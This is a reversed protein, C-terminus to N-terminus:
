PLKKLTLRDLAVAGGRAEIKVHASPAKLQVVRVPLDACSGSPVDVWEWHQDGIRLIGASIAEGRPVSHPVSSDQVARPAIEYRGDAPVPVTITVQAVGTVPTPTVVLVKGNSACPEKSFAPAAFGNEQALAPWEAEAEFRLPEGLAPPAWPVLQPVVAGPAPPPSGPGTAPAGAPPPAPELKYLYTTPHDLADYVLRDRDDNRLRAVVVGTRPRAAPDHGLSFGHDTDVFVLAQSTVNQRSLVDPEFMPRGGDREALQVHEFAAHVAFGGLSLGLVAFTARLLAGRAIRAVGLALLAHEVPLLDAFLRAGGGPYNGDFYFPAYALLHLGLLATAAVVARSRPRGDRGRALPALVVLALPEFSAVDLLHMKLRRLTTGAAEVAGYGRPLRAAVFEGHENLCGTGEGFGWRFCGPPGDSLAYYMKQASAGWAGTVSHSALLLLLVGPLSGLALARLRRARGDASGAVLAAAVLAIPVASVPRTAAVLGMALGAAGARGRLARELAITVGLATAAHSMTDATHYRLAACVMSLLAAGRAVAEVTGAHEGGAGITEVAIARALRYTTVVLAAAIAPGVVMPAGFAFGIALLLPYGPPFIGGLVAGEAGERYVLFRGRFSASPELPTWALDGHSLARGQLFYTTADVIRPGGRLYHAIYFISLLAAGFATIWLFLRRPLPHPGLGVLSSGRGLLAVILAAVALALAVRAVDDPPRGWSGLAATIKTALEPAM